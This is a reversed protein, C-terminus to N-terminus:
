AAVAKLHALLTRGPDPDMMALAAAHARQGMERWAARAQWARELAAGYSEVTAAEALFGTKGEEISERCLGVDTAVVPRGCLMAETLTLPGSERRSTMLGLQNEAWLAHVDQVYGMWRVRDAIGYHRALRELFAQDPGRGYARLEWDRDAWAAGGLVELLMDQGKVAADLRGVSAMGATPGAPWDAADRRSVNVPNQITVAQTLRLGLQREAIRRNNDSIFFVCRANAFYEVIKPREDAGPFAADACGHCLVVYPIASERLFALWDDLVVADYCGGQNLCIVDPNAHFLHRFPSMRHIPTYEPTKWLRYQLMRAVRSGLGILPPRNFSVTVGRARLAAIQAASALDPSISLWLQHGEDLADHAAANWLEECAGWGWGTTSIVAIKM